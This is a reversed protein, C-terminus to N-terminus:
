SESSIINDVVVAIATVLDQLDPDNIEIEYTDGWILSVAAVSGITRGGLKISYNHGDFDGMLSLDQGNITGTVEKRTLKMKKKMTGISKDNQLLTYEPMVAVLKKKIQFVVNDFSDTIKYNLGALDGEAYYAPSQDEHCITYKDKIHIKQEMYLKNAVPATVAEAAVAGTALLSSLVEYVEEVLRDASGEAKSKSTGKLAAFVSDKIFSVGGGAAITRQIQINDPDVTIYVLVSEKAPFVIVEQKAVTGISPQGATFSVDSIAALLSEVTYGKDNKIKKFGVMNDNNM